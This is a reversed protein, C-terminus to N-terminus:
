GSIPASGLTTLCFGRFPSRKAESISCHTPPCLCFEPGWTALLTPVPFSIQSHPPQRWWHLVLCHSRRQTPSTPVGPGPPRPPPHPAGHQPVKHNRSGPNQGKRWGWTGRGATAGGTFGFDLGRRRGWGAGLRGSDASLGSFCLWLLFARAQPGWLVPPKRGELEAM